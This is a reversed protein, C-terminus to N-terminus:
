PGTMLKDFSQSGKPILQKKMNQRRYGTKQRRGNVNAKNPKTKEGAWDERKTM